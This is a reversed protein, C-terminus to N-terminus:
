QAALDPDFARAMQEYTRAIKLLTERTDGLEDDDAIARLEAAKMWFKMARDPNVTMPYSDLRMSGDNM